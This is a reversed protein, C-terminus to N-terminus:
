IIVFSIVNFCLVHPQENRVLPMNGVNQRKVKSVTVVFILPTVSLVLALIKAACFSPHITGCRLIIPSVLGIIYTGYIRRIWTHVEEGTISGAEPNRIRIFKGSRDSRGTGPLTEPLPRWLKWPVVILGAGIPLLLWPLLIAGAAVHSGTLRFTLFLSTECVIATLLLGWAIWARRTPVEPLGFITPFMRISVAFIMLMAMGHIQLDRLPAQYTAIQHLLTDRDPAAMLQAAHWGSYITQIFFFTLAAFAFAIYPKIPQGSRVFATLLLVIFIAVAAVEVIV